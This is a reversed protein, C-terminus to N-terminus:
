LELWGQGSAYRVLEARTRLGLKELGRARYTEVSKVGVDIRSAIEKNTFGLAAM